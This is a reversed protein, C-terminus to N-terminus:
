SYVARLDPEVWERRARASFLREPSFFRLPYDSKALPSALVETAWEPPTVALPPRLYDLRRLFFLTITQHYGSADDNVVGTAENYRRICDPAQEETGALSLESLLGVGFVLHAAHTWEPKPLTRDCVGDIIRRMADVTVADGARLPAHPPPDDVVRM